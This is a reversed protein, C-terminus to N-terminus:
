AHRMPDAAAMRGRHPCVMDHILREYAEIVVPLSHRAALYDSARQGAQSWHAVDQKLRLVEQVMADLDTVISGVPQGDLRVMPDFFSVTPMRRSWAQLFTNPFGEGVSTNVFVSAGDFHQEVDAFPVFGTMEVNPLARAQELLREYYAKEDASHDPGGVLRFRFQPLREALALFLHPRKHRKATAVWLVDGAHTAAAGAHAYCSPVLTAERGFTQRCLAVQRQSQVVVRDVRRVGWRYIARDRNYQILPLEPQFDMDHAGAFLSARRYRRAFAAVVGTAMGSARQYYVDADARRMASWLGTLRPHVFRLVPLGATPAHMRIMRVGRITEQAAQGHDMCLMSVPYGRAALATALTVMQVEAGGVVRLSRDGALVAYAHPAIFAISPNPQM